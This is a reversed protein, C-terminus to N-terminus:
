KNTNTVTPMVPKTLPPLQNPPKVIPLETPKPRRTGGLVVVDGNENVTLRPRSYFNDYYDTLAVTGDPSLTNPDLLMTPKADLSPQWYLVSQNQLGNNKSFFYRGGHRSPFGYREYNWLKTLREKIAPLTPIRGLFAATVKNQEVVWAQTEPATDDPM